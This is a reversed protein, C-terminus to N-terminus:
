ESEKGSQNQAIMRALTGAARAIPSRPSSIALIEGRIAADEPRTGDHQIELAASIGLLKEIERARVTANKPRHNIVLHVQGEQLKLVNRFIGYLSILDKVILLEPTAVVFVDESKELLSLAVESLVIGLDILVFRFQPQLVALARAVLAPTILDSEEPALATSLLFFGSRHHALASELRQEFDSEVDALRALSSTPALQALMAAHNFPLSLDVLLVEGPHRKALTAALNLALTTKGVGGKPSYFSLLRNTAAAIVRLHADKVIDRRQAVVREFEARFHPGAMLAELLSGRSIKVVTADERATATALAPEGTLVSAAGFFDAEALLAIPLGKESPTKLTIQFSGTQIIYLFNNPEGQSLLATGAKVSVLSSQKALRRLAGSPHGLFISVTDLLALKGPVEADVTQSSVFSRRLNAALRAALVGPRIPKTLYEDVGHELGSVVDRDDSRGTLMIIPVMLGSRRLDQCVEIGSIDPLEWDLLVLDPQDVAALQLATRGDGAERAEYNQMACVERLLEMM